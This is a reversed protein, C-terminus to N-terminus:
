NQCFGQVSQDSTASLMHTLSDSNLLAAPVPHIKCICDYHQREQRCTHTFYSYRNEVMHMKSITHTRAYTPVLYAHIHTETYEQSCKWACIPVFHCSSFSFIVDRGCRLRHGRVLCVCQAKKRGDVIVRSSLYEEM